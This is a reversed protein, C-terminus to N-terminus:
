FNMRMQGEGDGYIFDDHFEGAEEASVQQKAEDDPEDPLVYDNKVFTCWACKADGCDVDFDYERMKQYTDKIQNSVIEVEGDSIYYDEEFFKGYQDAEVFSMIGKHMRLSGQGYEDMLIKYFVVQRWYDGGIEDLKKPGAVKKKRANPDSNGTKFDVVTIGGDSHKLMLDLRGTIRVDGHTTDIKREIEISEAEKWSNIREEVYKPLNAMGHALYNEFEQSTFFSKQKKMSAEFQESIIEPDVPLQDIHRRVVQELTDHVANGYGLFKNSALPVGLIKEFYFTRRCRLFSNLTSPSLVFKELKKDILDHDLLPLKQEKAALLSQYYAVVSESLVQEQVLLDDGGSMVEGIFMSREDPMGNLQEAPYSITLHEKARTMAVYFLRRDDAEDSGESPDELGAPLQYGRNWGRLKEWNKRNCGIMFVHKFELGKSGHATLFNIGNKTRTLSQMPLSLGIDRMQQLKDLFAGIQLGDTRLSEEKLYNFFTAVVQMRYSSLDMSLIDGFVNGDKLIREFLVQLTVHPISQIWRDITQTFKNISEMDTLELSRLLQVDMLTQGLSRAEKRDSWVFHAIKALDVPALGFFRFHMIRFLLRDNKGPFEAEARLFTLIDELNRVLPDVLINERLKVDVPIGHYTLVKILNSALSHKRYIVAIESLDEKSEYLAKLAEFTGTEEQAVNIYELVNVKLNPQWSQAKLKKTLGPIADGLRDPNQNILAMSVDLINQTSRYNETLIIVKPDYMSKLEKLNTINAGQFRFIAQDEDGVVFLNPREWYDSLLKIIENQSGNTDQYEDVLLYLFQEQYSALLLEDTRFTNVVWHIMDDFDYRGAQRMKEQFPTFLKVAARLTVLRRLADYYNKKPDGAKYGKGSKKYYYSGDDKNAKIRDEEQEILTLMHDPNWFEKKMTGYLRDLNVAEYYHDGKLRRIPNDPSLDNILEHLMQAKELESAHLLVAYDSFSEQHEQIVQNCFSHYTHVQVRYADSGIFQHLRRRMAIAGADTYTLCLINHPQTDTKQLINGIRLALIQTKGTGPGAVVMVPGEIQDVAERQASNLKEYAEQYVASTKIRTPNPTSM